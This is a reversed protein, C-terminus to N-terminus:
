PNRMPPDSLWAKSSPPDPYKFDLKKEIPELIKPPDATGESGGRVGGSILSQFIIKTLSENNKKQVADVGIFMNEIM